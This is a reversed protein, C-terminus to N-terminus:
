FRLNADDTKCLQLTFVCIQTVPGCHTLNITLSADLGGRRQQVNRQTLTCAVEAFCHGLIYPVLHRMRERYLATSRVTHVSLEAPKVDPACQSAPPRLALCLLALLHLVAFVAHCLTLSYQSAAGSLSHSLTHACM